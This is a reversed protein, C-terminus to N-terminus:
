LTSGRPSRFLLFLLQRTAAVAIDQDILKERVYRRIAERARVLSTFSMNMADVFFLTSRAPPQRLQAAVSFTEMKVPAPM